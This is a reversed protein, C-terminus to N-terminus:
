HTLDSGLIDFADHCINGHRIVRRHAASRSHGCGSRGPSFQLKFFDLFLGAKERAEFIIAM